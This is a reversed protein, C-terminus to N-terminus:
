FRILPVGVSGKRQYAGRPHDGHRKMRDVMFGLSTQMGLSSRGGTASGSVVNMGGDKSDNYCAWVARALADSIDDHAGARHPARVLVRHKNKMEAELSLIEPILVPDDYLVLLEEAYMRKLLQYISSNLLDNFEKMELMGLGCTKLMEALAYGNHQDFLGKKFPFWKHTEKIEGIMDAMSLLDKDSYKGCGAYISRDSDWVDSAGSYWVKSYDLYVKRTQMDKHVVCLATGDNKFGLDIGAYYEIGTQGRRPASPLTICKKMENEDEVWAKVSDSFEAGYECMFSSRDRRKAAVLIEKPLDPNMMASYMKFSLTVDTEDFSQIFREYFIGFKAYPSSICIVKGDNQFSAVSPTLARYVEKGSFRGTNDIFFAMEDMIVVIANKGRLTNSSCGGSLMILSPIAKPGLAIDADTQFDFYTQTSHVGRGQLYPCQIALTKAMGFVTDSQDDAPAVNLIYCKTFAPFGYSASPDGKKILKYMEYNSMCASLTSNHSVVDGGIIHTGSVEVDVTLRKGVCNLSSVEDWMVDSTGMNMLFDDCIKEGYLQVKRRSPAYNWRLRGRAGVGHEGVVDAGSLGRESMVKKVYRWIGKPVSGFESKSVERRRASEVVLDVEKEKSLIGIDNRFKELSDARAICLSWSEFSKGGCTNKKKNVISHIGYKLLLHRVGDIMKRSASCYGIHASPSGGHGAAVKGKVTAWGDCGFLRSLFASVEVRSGRLICDPVEKIVAKKGFCGVSRLWEKVENKRSGYQKFRGSEKQVEYGLRFSKLGKKRVVYGPFELAILKKLDGLMVESGTTYGVSCTTGGDGQFHGLLAARAVGVGALGFLETCAAIAVKDGVMLNKMEVFDPKDMDDRWVLYPHNWSSTERIGRKTVLECCEVRGNYQAKIQDSISRRLTVPDYTGIGIKEGNGLRDCLEGFTISGATTAILDDKDRCKGSRRGISWVLERFLMGDTEDVNCRGEAYLWKLFDAENFEYLIRENTEDPVKITKSGRDLPLGYACKVCFKQVPKLKVRLGWPAEIFTIPDVDAAGSSLFDRAIDAFLSNSDAM